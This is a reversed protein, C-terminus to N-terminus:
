YETPSFNRYTGFTALWDLNTNLSWDYSAAPRWNVDYIGSCDVSASDM